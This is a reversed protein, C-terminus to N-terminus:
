PLNAAHVDELWSYGLYLWDPEGVYEYDAGQHDPSGPIRVQRWRCSRSKSEESDSSDYEVSDVPNAYFTTFDM